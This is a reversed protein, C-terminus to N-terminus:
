RYNYGGHIEIVSGNVFTNKVCFRVAEAVEEPQAFRELATKSCISRRIDEQKNKQWDTDVFGPAIVNVTTRKDAFEKVLNKALAIEAAKSVGYSLSVSHPLVGMLSGIFVIRSDPPIIDYLDRILYMSSNVNVQMVREWDEDQTQLGARFTTGANLILCDIHEKQRMKQVFAAMAHKDSQDAQIIEFCDSIQRLEKDCNDVAKVDHGYTVTVAYNEQLLTKAIALGIGKTAGTVIANKM